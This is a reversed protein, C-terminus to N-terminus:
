KETSYVVFGVRMPITKNALVKNNKAQKNFKIKIEATKRTSKM